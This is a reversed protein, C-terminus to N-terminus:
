FSLFRGASIADTAGDGATTIVHTSSNHRVDGTFIGSIKMEMLENTIVYGVQDSPLLGWQASNPESGIAIFIGTLELTSIKANETNKLM